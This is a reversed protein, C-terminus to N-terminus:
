LIGVAGIGDPFRQMNLPHDRLHPLLHEAIRRHYDALDRKTLGIDPFLIKQPRSIEVRRSGIDLLIRNM